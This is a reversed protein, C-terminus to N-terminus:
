GVEQWQNEFWEASYEVTGRDDGRTSFMLREGMGTTPAGGPLGMFLDRGNVLFFGFMTTPGFFRVEMSGEGLGRPALDRVEDQLRESARDMGKGPKDVLLLRVTLSELVNAKAVVRALPERMVEYLLAGDPAFCDIAVRGTAFAEQVSVALRPGAPRQAVYSGSGTRSEILGDNRLLTMAQHVTQRSVDFQEALQAQSPLKEGPKLEGREILERVATAIFRYPPQRTSDVPM